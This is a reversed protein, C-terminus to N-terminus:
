SQKGTAILNAETQATSKGDFRELAPKAPWKAIVSSGGKVNEGVKVLIEAGKPLWVDVRSGFRV